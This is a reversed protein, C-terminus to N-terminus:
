CVTSPLDLIVFTVNIEHVVLIHYNLTRKGAFTNDCIECKFPKKKMFQHFTINSPNDEQFALMVFGVNSLSKERIFQQFM